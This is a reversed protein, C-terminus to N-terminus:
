KAPQKAFWTAISEIMSNSYPFSMRHMASSERKDDRYERMAMILYDRDQGKLKPAVMSPNSEDDHCRNCKAALEDTPGPIKDAALPKQAAYYAVINEVDKDGLGAVYRQMGWSKRTTWYAKTAKLLYDFDQGALSPTAADRSVGKAGHCGGCMTSLREGAAVDGRAPVPRQVPTQASYYAALSELELRDSDGMTSKMLGKARDGRHYEHIAAILYAPQQGALSPTGRATANGDAGHCKACAQALKKGQEYPTSHAVDLAAATAVPPQAAYYAAINRIDADSMKTVIDRLGSHTRKGDKYEKLSAVLSRERQAALHPIAPGAGKGDLGHCGKCTKEALAKGAAIDAAPAAVAPAKEPVSKATPEKEKGCGVLALSLVLGFLITKM